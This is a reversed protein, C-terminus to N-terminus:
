KRNLPRSRGVSPGRGNARVREASTSECGRGFGRARVDAAFFLLCGFCGRM